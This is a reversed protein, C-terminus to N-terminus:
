VLSLLWFFLYNYFHPKSIDCEQQATTEILTLRFFMKSWDYSLCKRFRKILWFKTQKWKFVVDVTLYKLLQILCMRQTADNECLYTSPIIYTHVCLKGISICLHCMDLFHYVVGFKPSLFKKIGQIKCTERKSKQILKTFSTTEQSINSFCIYISTVLM